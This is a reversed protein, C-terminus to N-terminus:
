RKDNERRASQKRTAPSKRQELPEPVVAGKRLATLIVDCRQFQRDYRPDAGVHKRYGGYAQEYLDADRHAQAHAM